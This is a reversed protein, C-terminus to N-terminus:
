DNAAQMLKAIWVIEHRISHRKLYESVARGYGIPTHLDPALVRVGQHVREESTTLTRSSGLFQREEYGLALFIPLMVPHDANNIIGAALNWKEDDDEWIRFRPYGLPILNLHLLEHALAEERRGTDRVVVEPALDSAKHSQMFEEIKIHCSSPQEKDIKPLRCTLRFGFFHWLSLALMRAKSSGALIDTIRNLNERQFETGFMTSYEIIM